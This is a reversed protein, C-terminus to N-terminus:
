STSILMEIKLKFSQHPEQNPLSSFIFFSWQMCFVPDSTPVTLVEIALAFIAAYEPKSFDVEFSSPHSKLEDAFGM